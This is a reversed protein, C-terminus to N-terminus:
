NWWLAFRINEHSFIEGFIRVFELLLLTIHRCNVKNQNSTEYTHLLTGAALSGSHVVASPKTYLCQDKTTGVQM